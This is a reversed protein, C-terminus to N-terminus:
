KYANAQDKFDLYHFRNRFLIRFFERVDRLMKKWITDSRAKPTNAVGRESKYRLYEKWKPLVSHKILEDMTSAESIRNRKRGKKIQKHSEDLKSFYNSKPHNEEYKPSDNSKDSLSRDEGMLQLPRLM